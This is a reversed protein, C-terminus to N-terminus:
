GKKSEPLRPLGAAPCHGPCADPTCPCRGAPLRVPLVSLLDATVPLKDPQPCPPDGELLNQPNLLKHSQGKPYILM